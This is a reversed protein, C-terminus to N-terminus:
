SIICGVPANGRGQRFTRFGGISAQIPESVRWEYFRSKHIVNSANDRDGHSPIQKVHFITTLYKILLFPTISITSTNIKTIVNM